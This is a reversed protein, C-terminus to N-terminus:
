LFCHTKYSNQSQILFGEILTQGQDKDKYRVILSEKMEVKFHKEGKFSVPYSTKTDGLPTPLSSLLALQLFIHAFVSM